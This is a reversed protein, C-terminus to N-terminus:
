FHGFIGFIVGLSRLISNPRSRRGFFHHIVGRPSLFRRFPGFYSKRGRLARRPRWEIPVAPPRFVRLLPWFYWFDGRFPGLFTPEQFFFTTPRHHGEFVASFRFFAFFCSKWGKKGRYAWFFYSSCSVKHLSIAPDVTGFTGLIRSFTAWSWLFAKNKKRFYQGLVKQSIAIKSKQLAEIVFLGKNRGWCLIKRSKSM